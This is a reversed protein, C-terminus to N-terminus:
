KKTDKETTLGAWQLNLALLRKLLAEDAMEPTYDAWGYAAADAADVDKHAAALRAPADAASLSTAGSRQKPGRGTSAKGTKM